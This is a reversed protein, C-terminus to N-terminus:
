DINWYMLNCYVSLVSLSRQCEPLTNRFSRFLVKRHLRHSEKSLSNVNWRILSSLVHLINLLLPRSGKMSLNAALCQSRIVLLFCDQILSVSWMVPMPKASLRAIKLWSRSHSHYVCSVVARYTIYKRTQRFSVPASVSSLLVTVTHKIWTPRFRLYLPQSIMPWHISKAKTLCELCHLPQWKWFTNWFPKLELPLWHLALFYRHYNVKKFRNWIWHIVRM